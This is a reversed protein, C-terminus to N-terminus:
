KVETRRVQRSGRCRYAIIAKESIPRLLLGKRDM